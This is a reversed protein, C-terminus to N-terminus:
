LGPRRSGAATSGKATAASDAKEVLPGLATHIEKLTSNIRPVSRAISATHTDVARVGFAVKGLVTSVARLRRIILMLYIALVGIVLAIEVVTLTVLLATM